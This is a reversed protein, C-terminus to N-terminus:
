KNIQLRTIHIGNETHVKVIYIGNVVGSLENSYMGDAAPTFEKDYVLAGAVSYVQIRVNATTNAAVMFIGNSPNPYVEVGQGATIGNVDSPPPPPPPPPNTTYKVCTVVSTLTCGQNNSAVVSYCNAATDVHLTDSTTIKILNGNRYWTYQSYGKDTQLNKNNFTISLTHKKLNSSALSDVVVDYATKRMHQAERPPISGNFMANEPSTKFISAFITAAALYSGEYSPHAEDPSWLDMAPYDKIIRNWSISIPTVIEDLSKNLFCYNEYVRQNMESGTNFIPPAGQWGNKFCWGSFLIMKACPNNAVASDRLKKHSNVADATSPIQGYNWSYFGQNDQVVIYDFKGQSIMDYVAPNNAHAMQGQRLDGVFIGGPSYDMVDVNYGAATAMDKFIHALGNSAVFSNGLFLVKVQQAYVQATCLLCLLTFIKKM